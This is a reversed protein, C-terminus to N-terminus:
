AACLYYSVFLLQRCHNGSALETTLTTRVLKNETQLHLSPRISERRVERRKIKKIFLLGEISLFIYCRANQKLNLENKNFSFSKGSYLKWYAYHLSPRKKSRKNWHRFHLIASPFTNISCFFSIGRGQPSPPSDKQWDPLTSKPQRTPKPLSIHKIQKKKKKQPPLYKKSRISWLCSKRKKDHPSFFTLTPGQQWETRHMLILTQVKM